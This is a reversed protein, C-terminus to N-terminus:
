GGGPVREPTPRLNKLFLVIARSDSLRDARIFVMEPKSKISAKPTNGPGTKEICSVGGAASLVSLSSFFSRGSSAVRLRAKVVLSPEQIDRSRLGSPWVIMKSRM